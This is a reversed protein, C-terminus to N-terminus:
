RGRPCTLGEARRAGLARLTTWTARDTAWSRSSRRRTSAWCRRRPASRHRADGVAPVPLGVQRVAGLVPHEVDVTMERAVRRRADRVGRHRRQDARVPHRRADLVALWDATPRSRSGRPWSRGCTPATTSGTATPRSGRTRPWGPCGSRRACGRGSASAASRSRSSATPRRSRRTRSSTPTPTAWAGPRARRQRVREPGPQRARRADVRAAVRRDAPRARGDRGARALLGALVSVAGFLGTVVDSIAVGSRRRSPGRGRRARGHDVDARRGGPGRLRLRAERRGARRPRLGHDRPPRPGPEAGDAGRRRLGLRDLAASASTRSSCTRAPSCGASSRAARTASSTSASRASTATSRRPLLRRDPHRRGRRGGVAPGLWADRRGRAARGQHRGRRPGRPADHLVPRRPGDLLRRRPDRGAPRARRHAPTGPGAPRGDPSPLAAAGATRSTRPRRAHVNAPPGALHRHPRSANGPWGPGSGDFSSVWPRTGTRSRRSRQKTASARSGRRREGGEEAVVGALAERGVARAGSGM